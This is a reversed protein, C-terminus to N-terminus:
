REWARVLEVLTEGVADVSDTSLKDYTDQLGDKYRYSWDILDVSPIGARLFPTHDDLIGVSTGGPFVAGTGIRKSAARVDDWLSANSSAERPLRVGKNGMYDLLVM